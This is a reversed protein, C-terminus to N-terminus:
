CPLFDFAAEFCRRRQPFQYFVTCLHQGYQGPGSAEPKPTWMLSGHTERKRRVHPVCPKHALLRSWGEVLGSNESDGACCGLLGSTRLCRVSLSLLPRLVERWVSHLASILPSQVHSGPSPQPSWLPQLCAGTRASSAPSQFSRETQLGGAM